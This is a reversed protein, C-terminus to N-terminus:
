IKSHVYSSVPYLMQHELRKKSTLDKTGIWSIFLVM